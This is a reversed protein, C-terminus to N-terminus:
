VLKWGLLNVLVGVKNVFGLIIWFDKVLCYFGYFFVIVLNVFNILYVFGYVVDGCEEEFIGFMWDWIIFIGGYNKDFYELNFGYYVWYYFLMNLIVEVLWLLKCVIEMYLVM